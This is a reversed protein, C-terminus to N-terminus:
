LPADTPDKAAASILELLKIVDAYQVGELHTAGRMRADAIESWDFDLPISYVVRAAATAYSPAREPKLAERLRDREDAADLLARIEGITLDLDAASAGEDYGEALAMRMEERRERTIEAM